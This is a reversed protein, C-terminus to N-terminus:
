VSLLLTPSTAADDRRGSDTTESLATSGEHTACSHWRMRQNLRSWSIYRANEVIRIGNGGFKFGVAAAIETHDQSCM